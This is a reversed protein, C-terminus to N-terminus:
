SLIGHLFRTFVVNALHYLDVDDTIDHPYWAARSVSHCSCCKVKRSNEGFTWMGLRIMLFVVLLVLNPFMRCSVQVINRLFSLIMFFFSTSLSCLGFSISSVHCSFAIHCGQSTGPVSLLCEYFFQHFGFLVQLQTLLLIDISTWFYCIYSILLLPFWFFPLHTNEMSGKCRKQFDLIILIFYFNM